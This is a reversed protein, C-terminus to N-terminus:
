EIVDYVALGEDVLKDALIRGIDSVFLVTRNVFTTEEFTLNENIVVIENYANHEM